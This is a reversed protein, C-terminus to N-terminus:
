MVSALQPHFERFQFLFLQTEDIFFYSTEDSEFWCPLNAPSKPQAQVWNTLHWTCVLLTRLFHEGLQTMMLFCNTYSCMYCIQEQWSLDRRKLSSLRFDGVRSKKSFLNRNVNGDFSGSERSRVDLVLSIRHNRSVSFNCLKRSVQRSAVYYFHWKYDISVNRFLTPSPIHFSHRYRFQLEDTNLM